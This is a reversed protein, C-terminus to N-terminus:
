IEIHPTRISFRNKAMIEDRFNGLQKETEVRSFYHQTILDAFEQIGKKLDGLLRDIVDFSGKRSIAMLEDIDALRLQTSLSLAIKEEMSRLFRTNSQPLAEVHDMLSALQFGIARPNLEDLLLLDVIPELHFTTRYRAHYTITCDAVELLAELDNGDPKGRVFFLSQLLSIMYGAREIRRGMDMFRWGMGRTMSELALGSFASMTLIVENVLEYAESIQILHGPHEDVSGIEMRGLIHWSDNSLKDRVSAAVRKVNQLANKISGPRQGNYLTEQIELEWKGSPIGAYSKLFEPSLMELSGLIRCLFPIEEIMELPIESNLRSLFSRFARLMGESREVYRGLWLMNDAVRSPLDSGRHIEVAETFHHMMSKYEVGTDDSFCWTDKSGGEDAFKYLTAEPIDSVRTLAGPMVSIDNEEAISDGTINKIRGRTIYGSFMRITACRSELRGNEWVPLSCPPIIEQAVYAYPATKIKGALEKLQEPGLTRTDVPFVTPANFASAIIMPRRTGTLDSLVTELINEQGCWLTPINPIILDEDLLVRCLGPLFPIMGPAELVGSGLPNVVAVNGSRIAQALGPVGALSSGGFVLPDCLADEIQRFIVDVAHLGGLTKLFVTDNRVTLDSSEVLTLGLYRSLFVHEFYSPSSPGSSLMVIFPERKKMGSIDMLCQNLFTFFPALRLVKGSHFMRPLIRSLIIRNELAYGAGYPIQTKDAFARWQGDSFRCLDTAHFHLMRVGEPYLGKCQRLFRHNAFILEPPLYNKKIVHQPGYIDSYIASLLRTRQRIGKELFIWTDAPIPFPVPDLGWPRNEQDNDSFINYAVGHEHLIQRAKQWRHELETNGLSNLYNILGQWHPVPIGEPTLAESCADPSFFNGSFVPVVKASDNEMTANKLPPVKDKQSFTNM